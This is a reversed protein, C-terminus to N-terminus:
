RCYELGQHVICDDPANISTVVIGIISVVVLLFMAVIFWPLVSEFLFELMRHGLPKESRYM